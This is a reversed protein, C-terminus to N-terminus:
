RVIARLDAPEREIQLKGAVIRSIDLMDDILQREHRVNRSIVEVAQRLREGGLQGREMLSVWGLVAQMPSRLEHSLTALFEDKARNAREAEMRAAHTEALLRDREEEIHRRA